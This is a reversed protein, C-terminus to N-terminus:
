FDLGMVLLLDCVLFLREHIEEATPHLDTLSNGAVTETLSVKVLSCTGFFFIFNVLASSESLHSLWLSALLFSTFQKSFLPSSSSNGRGRGDFM